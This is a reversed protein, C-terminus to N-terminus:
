ALLLMSRSFDIHRKEDVQIERTAVRRARLSAFNLPPAAMVLEAFVAPPIAQGLGLDRLISCLQARENPVQRYWRLGLVEAHGAVLPGHRGTYHSVFEAETQESLGRGLWLVRQGALSNELLQRPAGILVFSRATDFGYQQCSAMELWRARGPEAALSACFMAEDLELIELADVARSTGRALQLLRNALAKNRRDVWEYSRVGLAEGHEAHATARRACGAQVDSHGNGHDAKFLGHVLILRSETSEAGPVAEGSGMSATATDSGMM